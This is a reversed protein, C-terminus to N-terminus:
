AATILAERTAKIFASRLAGLTVGLAVARSAHSDIEVQNGTQHIEYWDEIWRRTRGVEDTLGTAAQVVTEPGWAELHSNLIILNNAQEVLNGLQDEPVESHETVFGSCRVFAEAYALFGQAFAFSAQRRQERVWHAHEAAAQQEVQLGVAELSKQAGIRAGYATALGGIGAGVLGAVGAWIAAVGQDM